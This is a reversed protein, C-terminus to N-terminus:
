IKINTEIFEIYNRKNVKDKNEKYWLYSQRLGEKLDTTEAMLKKQLSVDLEYEYDYFCFYNKQLINEYVNQIKLETGVVEYCLKVWDSVTIAKENGVNFIHNEPTEEM